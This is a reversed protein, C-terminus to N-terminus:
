SSCPRDDFPRRRVVRRERRGRHLCRGGLTRDAMVRAHSEVLAADAATYPSAGKAITTVRVDVFRFRHEGAARLTTVDDADSRLYLCDIRETRCWVLARELAASDLPGADLASLSAIRVGFFQTDWDLFRPTTM